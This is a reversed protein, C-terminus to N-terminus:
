LSVPAETTASRMLAEYVTAQAVADARGFELPGAGAFAASVTDGRRLLPDRRGPDVHVAERV